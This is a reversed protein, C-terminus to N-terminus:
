MGQNVPPTPVFMEETSDYLCVYGADELLPLSLTGDPKCLEFFTNELTAVSDIGENSTLVVGHILRFGRKALDDFPILVTKIMAKDSLSYAVDSVFSGDPYM